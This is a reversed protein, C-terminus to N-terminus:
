DGAVQDFSELLDAIALRWCFDRECQELLLPLIALSRRLAERFGVHPIRGGSNLLLMQVGLAVKYLSDFGWSDADICFKGLRESARQLDVPFAPEYLELSLDRRIEDLTARSSDVYEYLARMKLQSEISLIVGSQISALLNERADQAEPTLTLSIPIEM